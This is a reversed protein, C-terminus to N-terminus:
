TTFANQLWTIIMQIVRIASYTHAVKTPVLSEETLIEEVYCNKLPKGHASVLKSAIDTRVQYSMNTSDRAEKERRTNDREMGM